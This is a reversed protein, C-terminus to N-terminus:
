FVVRLLSFDDDFVESGQVDVVRQKIAELRTAPDRGSEGLLAVWEDFPWQEGDSARTVEYDGDSYVFLTGAEEVACHECAYETGPMAGVVLGGTSLRKVTAEAPSPGTVLIAPPHGGSAYSVTRSTRDYVGYWATMFMDNQTEMQFTDNLGALVQDPRGFDTDPLARARMVNVASVSLLAAGVGHGCVDILYIAFRDDDVWFCDFIDGGLQTSPVFHWDTVPRKSRPAPLLSRVYAAADALEQALAAYARNRQLLAIYGRSHYRIRAVVELKDPFKVMYDNAGCAFAEAKVAPEEKSSLVIM